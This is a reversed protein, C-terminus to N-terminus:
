INRCYPNEDGFFHYTVSHYDNYKEYLLNACNKRAIEKLKDIYERTLKEM